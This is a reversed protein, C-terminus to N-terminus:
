SMQLQSVSRKGTVLDTILAERYEKISSIEKQAKSIALNLARLEKKSQIVIEQQEEFSPMFLFFGKLHTPGYHQITSGEKLLEVQQNYIKSSIYLKLYEKSLRKSNARPLLRIIGTYAISGEAEESVECVIDTSASASILIDGKNLKFHSWKKKVKEPDLYNCGDLNALDGKLGSIRMLPVGENKFDIAMIGPGEQIIVEWSFRRIKWNTPIKGIWDIGIEKFEKHKFVGKTILNFVVNKKQEQLL